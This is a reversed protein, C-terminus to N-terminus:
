PVLPSIEQWDCGSNVKTREKYTYYKEQEELEKKKENIARNLYILFLNRGGHNALAIAYQEYDTEFETKYFDILYKDININLAMLDPYGVSEFRVSDIMGFDVKGSRVAHIVDVYSSYYNSDDIKFKFKDKLAKAARLNTSTAQAAIKKGELRSILDKENLNTEKIPSYLKSAIITQHNQRYGDSFVLGPNDKERGASKTINAIALDVDGNIVSTFKDNWDIIKTTINLKYNRLYEQLQKNFETRAIKAYEDTFRRAKLEFKVEHEVEVEKKLKKGLEESLIQILKMDYSIPKGACDVPDDYSLYVATTGVVLNKTKKLKEWTSKYMSFRGYRSWLRTEDKSKEEILNKNTKNDSDNNNDANNKSTKTYKGVVPTGHEPYTDSKHHEDDINQQNTSLKNTKLGHYNKILEGTGIRWFFEGTVPEPFQFHIVRRRHGEPIQYRTILNKDGGVRRLELVFDRFGRDVNYSWKFTVHQGIIPKNDIPMILVPVNTAENLVDVKRALNRNETQINNYKRNLDSSQEEAAKIKEKYEDIKILQPNIYSFFIVSITVSIAAFFIGTLTALKVNINRFLHISVDKLYELTSVSNSSKTKSDDDM